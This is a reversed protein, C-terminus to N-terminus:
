VGTAPLCGPGDRVDVYLDRQQRRRLNIRNAFDVDYFVWLRSM